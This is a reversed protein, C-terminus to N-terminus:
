MKGFCNAKAKKAIEYLQLIDDPAYSIKKWTRWEEAAEWSFIKVYRPNDSLFDYSIRISEELLRRFKAPDSAIGEDSLLDGALREFMNNGALDARKIVATYLGLKDQYYQYILSKNYGAVSAITDIRTASLGHEAFLEEADNLIM